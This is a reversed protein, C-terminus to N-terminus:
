ETNFVHVLLLAANSIAHSLLIGVSIIIKSTFGNQIIVAQEIVSHNSVVSCFFAM